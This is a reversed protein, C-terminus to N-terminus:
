KSVEVRIRDITVPTDLPRMGTSMWDQFSYGTASFVYQGDKEYASISELENSVAQLDSFSEKVVDEDDIEIFPEFQDSDVIVLVSDLTGEGRFPLINTDGNVDDSSPEYQVSSNLVVDREEIFFTEDATEDEVPVAGTQEVTEEFTVPDDRDKDTRNAGEFTELPTHNDEDMETKGGKEKQEKVVVTREVTTSSAGESQSLVGSSVMRNLLPFNWIGLPGEIM